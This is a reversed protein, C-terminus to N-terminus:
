LLLQQVQATAAYLRHALPALLLFHILHQMLLERLQRNHSLVVWLEEVFCIAPAPWDPDLEQALDINICHELHTGQLIAGAIFAVGL